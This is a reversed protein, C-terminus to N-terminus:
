LISRVAYASFSHEFLDAKKKISKELTYMLTEQNAGM